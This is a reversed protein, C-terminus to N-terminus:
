ACGGFYASLYDFIDQVTIGGAGNFDARPDGSFYATLFDFIDQVTLSGSNNFDPRCDNFRFGMDDWFITGQSFALSQPPGFRLPLVSVKADPNQPPLAWLQGTGPNIYLAENQQVTREFRVWQDNTHIGPGNPTTVVVIGPVNTAVNPDNPNIDLWEPGVYTSDNVTRRFELKLGARQGAFGSLGQSVFPTASPIYFYGWVTISPEGIGFRYGANNVPSGLTGRDLPSNSSFGAFDSGMPLEISRTGTRAVAAPTLGDGIERYTASNFRDWGSPYSANFPDPTEFSTNQLQQFPQAQAVGGATVCAGIALAKMMGTKM